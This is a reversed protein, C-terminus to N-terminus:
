VLTVIGMSLGRVTVIKKAIRLIETDQLCISDYKM